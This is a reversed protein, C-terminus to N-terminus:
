KGPLLDTSTVGKHVQHETIALNTGIVSLLSLIALIIGLILLEKM